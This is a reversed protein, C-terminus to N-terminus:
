SSTDAVGAAELAAARDEHDYIYAIKGARVKLQAYFRVDATAGSGRGRGAIHISAVVDDGEEVVEDGSSLCGVMLHAVPSSGAVVQVVVRDPCRGPSRKAVYAVRALRLTEQTDSLEHGEVHGRTTGSQVFLPLTVCPSRSQM